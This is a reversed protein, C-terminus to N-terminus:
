ASSWGGTTGRRAMSPTATKRQWYWCGSGTVPPPVVLKAPEPKVPDTGARLIGLDARAGAKVDLAVRQPGAEIRWTGAAVRITDPTSALAYGEIRLREGEPLSRVVIWGDSAGPRDLTETVRIRRDAPCDIVRLIVERTGLVRAELVHRGPTAAFEGAPKPPLAEGDWAAEIGAPKLDLVVWAKGLKAQVMTMRAADLARLNADAKADDTVKRYAEFAQRYDGAEEWTRALNNLIEPLPQLAYAEQLLALTRETDGAERAMAAERLIREFPREQAPAPASVALVLVGLIAQAAHNRM